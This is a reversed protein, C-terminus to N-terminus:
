DDLELADLIMDADSVLRWGQRRDGSIWEAHGSRILLDRWEAYTQRSLGAKEWRRLSSDEQCGKVFQVFDGDCREEPSNYGSGDPPNILIVRDRPQQADGEVTGSPPRAKSRLRFWFFTVAAAWVLGMAPIECWSGFVARDGLIIVAAM